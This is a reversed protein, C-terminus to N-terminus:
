PMMNWIAREIIINTKNYCNQWFIGYNLCIIKM